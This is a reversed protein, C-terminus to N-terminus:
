CRLDTRLAARNDQTRSNSADLKSCSVSGHLPLSRCLLPNRGPLGRKSRRRRGQGPTVATIPGASLRLFWRDQILLGGIVRGAPRSPGRKEALWGADQILSIHQRPTAQRPRTCSEAGDTQPKGQPGNTHNMTGGKPAAAAMLKQRPTNQAPTGAHRKSNSPPWALPAGVVLGSQKTGWVRFELGPKLNPELCPDKGLVM